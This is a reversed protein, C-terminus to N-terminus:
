PEDCSPDGGRKALKRQVSSVAKQTFAQIAGGSQRDMKQTNARKQGSTRQLQRGRENPVLAVM